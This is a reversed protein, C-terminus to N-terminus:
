VPFPFCPHKQEVNYSLRIRCVAVTGDTNPRIRPPFIFTQNVVCLLHTLWSSSTACPVGVLTSCSCGLDDAPDLGTMPCQAPTSQEKPFAPKYHPERLLHNMSGHTGNNVAPSIELLDAPSVSKTLM